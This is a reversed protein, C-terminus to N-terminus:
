VVTEVVWRINFRQRKIGVFVMFEIYEVVQLLIFSLLEDCKKKNQFIESSM